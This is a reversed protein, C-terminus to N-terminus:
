NHLITENENAKALSRRELLDQVEEWLKFKIVVKAPQANVPHVEADAEPIDVSRVAITSSIDVFCLPPYLVCWWNKGEGAGLVIRLAEYEGSPLVLNGYAKTPFNFDGLEAQASYNEGLSALRNEACKQIEPLQEQVKARAEAITKTEQFYPTMYKIVEDRVLLKVKQDYASDSNALVHLRILDNNPLPKANYEQYGYIFGGAGIGLLLLLWGWRKKIKMGKM